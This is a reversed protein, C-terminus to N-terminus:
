DRPEATIRTAARMCAEALKQEDHIVNPSEEGTAFERVEDAMDHRNLQDLADAAAALFEEFPALQAMLHIQGVALDQHNSRKAAEVYDRLHLLATAMHRAALDLWILTCQTRVAEPHVRVIKNAVGRAADVHQDDLYANIARGYFAIARESQDAQLALDGARNLSMGRHGSDGQEAEAELTAIRTELDPEDDSSEGGFLNSLFSM